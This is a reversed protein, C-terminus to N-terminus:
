LSKAAYAIKEPLVGAVARLMNISHTKTLAYVTSADAPAVPTTRALTIEECVSPITLAPEGEEPLNDAVRVVIRVEIDIRLTLM